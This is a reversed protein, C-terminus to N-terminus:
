DDEGAKEDSTLRFAVPQSTHEGLSVTLRYSGSEAVKGRKTCERTASHRRDWEFLATQEDHPVLVMDQDEAGKQCIRTSLVREGDKDKVEFRQAKTGVNVTCPKSSLNMVRLALEPKEGRAYVPKDTAATLRIDSSECPPADISPTPTPSPSSADEAPTKRDEGEGREDKDASADTQEAAAESSEPGESTEGSSEATSSPASAGAPASGGAQPEPALARGILGAVAVGGWVLLALVLLAATGVVLRRRRYVAPSVPARRGPRQPSPM